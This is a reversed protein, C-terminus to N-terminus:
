KTELIQKLLQADIEEGLKKIVPQAAKMFAEKDVTNIIGGQNKIGDYAVELTKDTAGRAAEIMAQAAELVAKQIDRPYSDFTKKCFMVPTPSFTHETLSYYKSMPVFGYTDYVMPNNEAADVVKQELASHLEGWALPTPIAGFAKFTEVYVPDVMVRIKMGQLDSPKEVPRVSTYVSRFGGAHIYSLIKIGKPELRRAIEQGVPGNMVRGAHDLDKFIYALSFLGISPEYTSLAASAILAMEIAGEQVMLAMDTESGTLQGGTYNKVEVRGGTKENLVETFKAIAVNYPHWDQTAVHTARILYKQADAGDGQGGATALVAGLVLLCVAVSVTRKM